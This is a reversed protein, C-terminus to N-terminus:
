EGTPAMRNFRLAARTPVVFDGHYHLLGSGALDRVACEVADNNAFDIAGGSLERTLEPITLQSPHEALVFALVADETKADEIALSSPDGSTAGQRPDDQM